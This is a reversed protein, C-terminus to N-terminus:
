RIVGCAIRNGSNGSPDTVYDDAKEHIVISTGGKKLLSNAEGKKLTVNKSEIDAKVTGDAAVQINPLDGVHFGKPNYFGHQKHTTNFHEGASAFDPPECKGTEHIHFGHVGPPLGKAELHIKVSGDAQTFMATGVEQGQSNVIKATVSPTGENASAAPLSGAMGWLLLSLAGLGAAAVKTRM